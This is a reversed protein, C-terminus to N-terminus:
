LLVIIITNSLQYSHMSCMLGQLVMFLIFIPKHQRVSIEIWLSYLSTNWYKESGTCYIFTPLDQKFVLGGKSAGDKNINNNSNM